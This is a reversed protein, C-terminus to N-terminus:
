GGLNLNFGLIEAPDSVRLVRTRGETVIAGENGRVVSAVDEERLKAKDKLNELEPIQRLSLFVFIRDGASKQDYPFGKPGTPVLIPERANIKATERVSPEPTAPKKGKKGKKVQQKPPLAPYLMEAGKPTVRFVYCYGNVNSEFRLKYADGNRLETDFALPPGFEKEGKKKVEMESSIGIIPNPIVIKNGVPPKSSDSMDNFAALKPGMTPDGMENEAISQFTDAERVTYTRTDLDNGDKGPKPLDPWPFQKFYEAKLKLPPKPEVIPPLPPPETERTQLISCGTVLGLALAIFFLALRRKM